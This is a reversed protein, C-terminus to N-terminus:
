DMYSSQKWGGFSEEVEFDRTYSEEPTFTLGIRIEGRYEEDKVVNYATPPLKGEVFVPELPITAEGVFDDHSGFDSDMIKLKLESVGESVNFVFNENWVPDSGKGSAVSSKQEQTRCVLIVYPDMKSLFDTNELGKASVLVVELTGQPM